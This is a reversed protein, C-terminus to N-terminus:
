SKWVRSRRSLRAGTIALVVLSSAPMLVAALWPQMLGAWALAVAGANYAVAIVLNGRVTQVLAESARLALAIARFGPSVLYFDTRAAMFPRDIAPTGSVFAYEAALGDNIGDGFFLLDNRDHARVFAAKDDPSAGAIARADDLGLSRTLRTVRPAADGSLVYIERGSARLREVERAADPRLEEVTELAVLVVGDRSFVLDGSAGGAFSPSGLRYSAGEIRAELGRGAHEHVEVGDRLELPALAAALAHSKPHASRGALDYLARRDTAGLRELARPDAIALAGTTLTGTKDFVLTRVDKLRDLLTPTRAYLGARRLGAQVLEYALPTAIGFACPCTIVLVATAVETARLADSTTVYWATWGIAAAALVGTVYWQTYRKWWPTTGFRERERHRTTTLLRPLPSESFATIARARLATDAANFGGAPLVSGRAYSRPASEGNIWDLSISASEGCLECDVVVLDGPAVLLEDGAEIATARVLKVSGREVRRTYLGEAGDSALLETRNKELVREQLYRGLLMLAIFIAVTDFYDARGHTFFSFASGGFALVIGLAIPMDLHLVRNRLSQWASGIFVSGGVLVSACAFAFTLDRVFSHLPGEDLGLYIAIAFMMTNLALASSVGLRLLLEDGKKREGKLPPGFRYGFREIRSVFDALPFSPEVYLEVRGVAPNVDITGRAETREFLEEMLWVCGACHMGQVDLRVRSPGAGAALTAQLPELWKHDAAGRVVIPAGDEGRLDYFRDLSEGRLLAYVASCGDCCFGDERAAIEQGCHLCRASGDSARISQARARTIEASLATTGPV